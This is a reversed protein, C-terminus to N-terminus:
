LFNQVSERDRQHSWRSFYCTGCVMFQSNLRAIFGFWISVIQLIDLLVQFIVASVVTSNLKAWVEKHGHYELYRLLLIQSFHFASSPCNQANKIELWHLM